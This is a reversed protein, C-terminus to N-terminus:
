APVSVVSDHQDPCIDGCGWDRDRHDGRPANIGGHPIMRTLCSYLLEVFIWTDGLLGLLGLPFAKSLTPCPARHSM